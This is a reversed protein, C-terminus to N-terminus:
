GKNMSESTLKDETVAKNQNPDSHIWLWSVGIWWLSGDVCVGIPMNISLPLFSSVKLFGVCVRVRSVYLVRLREQKM